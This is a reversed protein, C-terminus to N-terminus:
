ILATVLVLSLKMGPVVLVGPYAEGASSSRAPSAKKREQEGVKTQGEQVSESPTNPDAMAFSFETPARDCASRRAASKM